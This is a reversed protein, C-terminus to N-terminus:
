DIMRVITSVTEWDEPVMLPWSYPLIKSDDSEDACAEDCMSRCTDVCIRGNLVWPYEKCYIDTVFGYCTEVCKDYDDFSPTNPQKHPGSGLTSTSDVDQLPDSDDRRKVPPEEPPTPRWGAPWKGVQCGLKCGKVWEKYGKTGKKHFAHALTPCAEKCAKVKDDGRPQIGLIAECHSPSLVPQSDQSLEGHNNNIAPVVHATSLGPLLAAISLSLIPIIGSPLHM